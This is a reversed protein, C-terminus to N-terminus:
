EKTYIMQGIILTKGSVVYDIADESEYFSKSFEEESMQLTEILEQKTYWKPKLGLWPKRSGHFHTQKFFIQGESITYTGKEIPSDDESWEYNGNSFKIKYEVEYEIVEVVDGRDGLTGEQVIATSVWTGNLASDTTNNNNAPDNDCGVVTMGFALVIVLM